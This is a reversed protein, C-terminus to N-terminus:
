FAIPMRLRDIMRFRQHGAARLVVDIANFAKPTIGFRDQLLIAADRLIMEGHIQFFDLLAESVTLLM